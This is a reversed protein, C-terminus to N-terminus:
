ITYKLYIDKGEKIWFYYLMLMYFIGGIFSIVLIRFLDSSFYTQFFTDFIFVIATIMMVLGFVPFLDKLQRLSHYDLVKSAYHMNVFLCLLSALVSGWILSHLGGIYIGLGIFLAIIIKKWLEAKLFLDSRGKIGVVQLNFAHLPYLLANILLIQFISASASWKETYLFNFLPKALVAGIGLIPGIILVILKMTNKQTQMLEKDNDKIKSLFPFSVKHIIGSFTVAPYQSLANARNYFGLDNISYQKGIVFNYIENFFTNLMSSAAMKSGFNFHKNFKLKDFCFGPRWELYLFCIFAKLIEISLTQLVLSWVGFNNIAGYLGMLVGFVIAMLNIVALEKFRLERSLKTFQVTYFAQIILNLGLIRLLDKLLDIKFFSAILPAMFYLIFYLLLSGILNFIFVTNYDEKDVEETRILSITLGSNVLTQAISLFVGLVAISGFDQPQLLRALYISALLSIFRGGLELLSTWFIGKVVTKLTM